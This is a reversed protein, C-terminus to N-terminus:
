VSGESESKGRSCKNMFSCTGVDLVTKKPLVYHIPCRTLAARGLFLGAEDQCPATAPQKNKHPLFSCVPGIIPCISEGWEHLLHEQLRGLTPFYRPLMTTDWTSSSPWLLCSAAHGLLHPLRAASFGLHVLHFWSVLLPPLMDLAPAIFNLCSICPLKGATFYLWYAKLPLLVGFPHLRDLALDISTILAFRVMGYVLNM